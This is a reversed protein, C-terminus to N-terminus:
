DVISVTKLVFDLAHEDRVRASLIQIYKNDTMQTMMSELDGGSRSVFQKIMEHVEQDTLQADPETERIRDLVLALRVNKEALELYNRRVEETQEDFNVEANAAVFRAEALTLWSPMDFQTSEVLRLSVQQLMAARTAQDVKSTAMGVVHNRFLEFNEFGAKTALSDDLPAPVVKSGMVVTVEFTANKGRISEIANEGCLLTFSRTESMKMGLLNNDFGDLGGQGVTMLQGTGAISTIEEGDVFVKYDLIVNDTLQVFDESTFVVTDSFQKRAEHLLQETLAEVTTEQPPKPISFGKYEGLEFDPRKLLNFKCSFKDGELSLETFEPTGIPKINNFTLTDHYAEEALAKKLAEHIQQKYYHKTAVESSKGPRSGPTPMKKFLKVVENLKSSVMDPTAEFSVSLKCPETESIQVTM